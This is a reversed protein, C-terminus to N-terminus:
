RQANKAAKSTAAKFGKIKIWNFFYNWTKNPAYFAREAPQCFSFVWIVPIKIGFWMNLTSPLTPFHKLICYFCTWLWPQHHINFKILAFVFVSRRQSYLSQFQKRRSLRYLKIKLHLIKTLSKGSDVLTGLRAYIEWKELVRSSKFSRWAGALSYEYIIQLMTVYWSLM